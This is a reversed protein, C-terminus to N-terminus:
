HQIAEEGMNKRKALTPPKPANPDATSRPVQQCNQRFTLERGRMRKGKNGSSKRASSNFRLGTLRPFTEAAKRTTSLGSAPRTKEFDEAPLEALLQAEASERKTLGLEALTPATDDLLPLAKNGTKGPKAGKNRETERLMQGM